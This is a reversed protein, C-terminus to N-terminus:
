IIVLEGLLAGSAAIAQFIAVIDAPSAGLANLGQVVDQTTVKAIAVSQGGMTANATAAAAAAGAPGPAQGQNPQNIQLQLGQHSVAVPLIEVDGGLVVTGTRENIVVRAPLDQDAELNQLLSVFAVEKGAFAKPVIVSITSADEARASDTRLAKNIVDVVTAATTFDPRNLNIRVANDAKLFTAPVEAEITAGSPVRGVTPFESSQGRAQTSAIPKGLSVQGQAVAYIKGDMGRLMTEFLTGGSLSSASGVSSVTVDLKDGSKVFPPMDATIIVAAFNKVKIETPSVSFGFSNLMNAIAEAAYPASKPDDGTGKLGGVLGFGILQNTRVGDIRSIDKLKATAANACPALLILAVILILIRRM